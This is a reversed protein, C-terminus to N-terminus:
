KQTKGTSDKWGTEGSFGEICRKDEVYTSYAGGMENEEM